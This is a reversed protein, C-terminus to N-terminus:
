YDSHNPRKPMNPKRWTCPAVRTHLFTTGSTLAKQTGKHNNRPLSPRSEPALIHPCSRMCLSGTTSLKTPVASPACGDYCRGGPLLCSALAPPPSRRRGEPKQRGRNRTQILCAAARPSRGHTARTRNLIRTSRRSRPGPYLLRGFDSLTM